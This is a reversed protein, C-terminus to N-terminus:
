KIKQIQRTIQKIYFGEMKKASEISADKMFHTPKVRVSRNDKFNYLPTPKLESGIVSVSFLTNKHIFYGSKKQALKAAIIFSKGTNSRSRVINKIKSLRANARVMKSDSKGVRAQRMPVFTRHRIEGGHEQQELEKVAYNNKAKDVFGVTAVMTRLDFGNAKEFRSNAKFFNPSRQTFESKASAPMTNTKVDFVTDNLANRAANPVAIKRIRELRNTQQVVANSDINLIFM